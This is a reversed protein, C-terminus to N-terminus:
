QPYIYIYTHLGRQYISSIYQIGPSTKFDNGQVQHFLGGRFPLHALCMINMCRYIQCCQDPLTTFRCVGSERVAGRPGITVQNSPTVISSLGVFMVSCVYCLMVCYLYCLMVCCLMVYWVIGYWVMAYCLMVRCLVVCRLMICCLLLSGGGQLWFFGSSWSAGSCMSQLKETSSTTLKSSFIAM